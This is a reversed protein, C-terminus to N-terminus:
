GVVEALPGELAARFRAFEAAIEVLRHNSLEAGYGPESPVTRVTCAKNNDARDWELEAGFASEITARRIALQDFWQTNQEAEAELLLKSYANGHNVVVQLHARTNPVATIQAWPVSKPPRHSGFQGTEARLVPLFRDWFEAHRQHRAATAESAVATAERRWENPGSLKDFDAFLQDGGRLLRARVLFVSIADGEAQEAVHNLYDAVAVFEERHGEAVIVLASADTAVAYALGRTLHDHDATGYQNEIAVLRGDSTEALIDLWRGGTVPVETGVPSLPGLGIRDGLYSLHEEQALWPTFDSAEGPFGIKLTDERLLGVPRRMM